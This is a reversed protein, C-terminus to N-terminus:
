TQEKVKVDVTVSVEEAVAVLPIDHFPSLYKGESNETAFIFSYMFLYMILILMFQNLIRFDDDIM